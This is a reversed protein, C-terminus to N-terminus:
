QYDEIGVVRVRRGSTGEVLELILRFQDNLMMSHQHTRTGSLKEYHLSKMARFDREDTAVRIFQMRKRFAIVVHPPLGMEFSADAELRTLDRDLPEVKM